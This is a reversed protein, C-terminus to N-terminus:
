RILRGDLGVSVALALDIAYMDEEGVVGVYDLLRQKDITRIQELLAVSHRNLGTRSNLLRHTPLPTKELQSTIASVIVTPSHENGIDNQIVLVPRLGGQESGIIPDLDAYYLEGRLISNNM